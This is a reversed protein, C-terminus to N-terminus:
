FKFGQKREYDKAKFVKVRNCSTDYVGKINDVATAKLHGCAPTAMLRPAPGCAPSGPYITSGALWLLRLQFKLSDSWNKKASAHYLKDFQCFMVKTSCHLYHPEISAYIKSDRLHGHIGMAM